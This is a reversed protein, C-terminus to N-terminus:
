TAVIICEGGGGGEENEVSNSPNGQYVVGL